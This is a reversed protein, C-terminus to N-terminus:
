DDDLTLLYSNAEDALRELPRKFSDQLDKSGFSAASAADRLHGEATDMLATHKDIDTTNMASEMNRTSADLSDSVRGIVDDDSDGDDLDDYFADLDEKVKDVDTALQDVLKDDRGTGTDNDSPATGGGGGGKRGGGKGGHSAQNHSGHKQVAVELLKRVSGTVNLIGDREVAKEVEAFEATSLYALTTSRLADLVTKETPKM